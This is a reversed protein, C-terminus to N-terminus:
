LLAACFLGRPKSIYPAKISWTEETQTIDTILRAYRRRSLTMSCRTRDTPAPNSNPPFSFRSLVGSRSPSYLEMNRAKNPYASPQQPTRAGHLRGQPKPLEVIEVLKGDPSLGAFKLGKAALQERFANNFEYRHRHREYILEEGYVSRSITGEDLKCPYLGLRMTGGMEVGKQDPMIDIVNYQFEGFEASNAGELGGVHRAFEVVAMQMGLCLGFYPSLGVEGLPLFHYLSLLVGDLRQGDTKHSFVDSQGVCVNRNHLGNAVSSRRVAMEEPIETESRLVLVTPQIGISLLEKVSHQTPKTKLENSGSIFPLLTVHIYM